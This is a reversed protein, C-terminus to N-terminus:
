KSELKEVFEALDLLKNFVESYGGSHGDEWAKSYIIDKKPHNSLGAEKIADDYFQKTLRIEEERYDDMLLKHLVCEREWIELKDAYERAMQPTCNNYSLNPKIPKQPFPLTNEYDKYNM